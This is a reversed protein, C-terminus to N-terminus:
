VQWLARCNSSPWGQTVRLVPLPKDRPACFPIALTERHEHISIWRADALKIRGGLPLRKNFAGRRPWPFCPRERTRLHLLWDGPSNRALPAEWAAKPFSDLLIVRIM